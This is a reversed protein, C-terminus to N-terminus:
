GLDALEEIVKMIIKGLMNKGSGDGGDVWYSDSKTKAMKLFSKKNRM